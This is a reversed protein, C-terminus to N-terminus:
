HLVRDVVAMAVMGVAMVAATAAAVIFFLPGGFVYEVTDLATDKYRTM